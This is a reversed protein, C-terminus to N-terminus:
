LAPLAPVSRREIGPLDSMYNYIPKLERRAADHLVEDLRGEAEGAFLSIGLAQAKQITRPVETLMSLCGSVHFGGISWRSAPPASAAPSISHVRFNTPSCASSGSWDSAATTRRDPPHHARAPHAHQDRRDRRHRHDVDEGLVKREGFRQRPRLPRRALEVADGLPAVPHRLRRRRLAVAQHTDAPFRRGAPQQKRM